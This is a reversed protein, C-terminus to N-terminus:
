TLEGGDAVLATGAVYSALPSALFVCLRGIEEPAALRGLPVGREYDARVEAPERSTLEALERITEGTMATDVSGPCLVNVRVGTPALEQALCQGLGVVGFKSACYAGWLAGARLGAQSSILTLTTGVGLRRAAERAFLFSGTLNAEIVRRWEALPVDRLAGVSTVGAAHVVDTVDGAEDFARAVAAEDTVDCAIVGDGSSVDAGVVQAGAADFERVIARGIGGAAGTV